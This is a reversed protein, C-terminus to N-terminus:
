CGQVIFSRSSKAADLLTSSCGKSRPRREKSAAGKATAGPMWTTRSNNSLCDAPPLASKPLASDLVYGETGNATEIKVYGKVRGVIQVPDGCKLKAAVNFDDLSEYVWVRDENPACKVNTNGGAKAPSVSGALFLALVLGLWRTM